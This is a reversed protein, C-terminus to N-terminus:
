SVQLFIPAEKLPPYEVRELILRIEIGGIEFHLMFQYISQPGKYGLILM